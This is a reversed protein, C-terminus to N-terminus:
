HGDMVMVAQFPNLNIKHVLKVDQSVLDQITQYHSSLHVKYTKVIKVRGVHQHQTYKLTRYGHM